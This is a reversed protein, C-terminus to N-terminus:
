ARYVLVPVRSDRIVASTTSGLVMSMLSSHGYAGMALLDAGLEAVAKPVAEAAPGAVVKAEVKAGKAQLREAAAACAHAGTSGAEGAYLIVGSLGVFLPSEAAAEVARAASPRNDFALVFRQIPKWARAAVLVPRVAGRLIRELNSGLHLKAFDAAEGRKGVVVLAADVAEVREAITELLDGHRITKAVPAVGDATMRETAEDLRLRAEALALKAREADLEALRELLKRRAGAILGGSLDEASAEPRGLVQLLEVGTQLRSAAWQAHGVVSDAYISGDVCALVTTM